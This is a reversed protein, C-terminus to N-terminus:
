IGYLNLYHNLNPYQECHSHLWTSFSEWQLAGNIVNNSTLARTYMVAAHTLELASLVRTKNLSGRFLRLEITHTNCLNVAEYREPYMQGKVVKGIKGRVGDYSAWRYSDRGALRVMQPKNDIILHWFNYLHVKSVFAARSVHVHLGCTQTRWSKCGHDEALMEIWSLDYEQFFELTAPHTVIEFGCELSGDHKLYVFDHKANAKEDADAAARSRATWDPAELELELGLWPTVRSTVQERQSHFDPEPKYSYSHIRADSGHMMGCGYCPENNHNWYQCEECHWAVHSICDRCYSYDGDSVSYSDDYHFRGDCRDCIISNEWCSKCYGHEGDWHLDFLMGFPHQQQPMDFKDDPIVYPGDCMICINSHNDCVSRRHYVMTLGNWWAAKTERWAVMEDYTMNQIEPRFEAVSLGIRIIYDGREDSPIQHQVCYFCEGDPVELLDQM